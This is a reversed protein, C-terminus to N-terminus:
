FGVIRNAYAEHVRRSIAVFEAAISRVAPAALVVRHNELVGALQEGLMKGEGEYLHTAHQLGAESREFEASMRELVPARAFVFAVYARVDTLLATLPDDSALTRLLANARTEAAARLAEAERVKAIGASRYNPLLPTNRLFLRNHFDYNYNRDLIYYGALLRDLARAYGTLAARLADPDAPASPPRAPIPARSLQFGAARQNPDMYYSPSGQYAGPRNKFGAYLGFSIAVGALLVGLAVRESRRWPLAPESSSV